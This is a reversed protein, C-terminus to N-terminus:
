RGLHQILRSYAMDASHSESFYKVLNSQIQKYDADDNVMEIFKTKLESIDNVCYGLSYETIIGSPNVTSIVPVKHAWAQLFTNPFGEFESTCVLIRSQSLFRNVEMFSKAGLFSLNNVDSAMQKIQDYYEVRSPGGVIAFKYQPYDKALTVFWEARKLPRLNSIWIADYLKEPIQEAVDDQLWINPLVLSSKGYYKLLAAQQEKNQTVFCEIQSLSKQYYRRNIPSGGVIENGPVFDSDSAGFMVLKIHKRRCLKSLFFLSRSAGRHIVIDPKTRICRICDMLDQVLQLHLRCLLKSNYTKIFHIGDVDRTQKDTFTYVNWGQKVFTRAWFSM